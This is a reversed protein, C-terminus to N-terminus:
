LITTTAHAHHTYTVLVKGHIIVKLAIASSIATGSQRATGLQRASQLWSSTIMPITCVNM